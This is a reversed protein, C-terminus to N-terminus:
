DKVEEGHMEDLDDILAQLFAVSESTITLVDGSSSNLAVEAIWRAAKVIALMEPIAIFAREDGEMLNFILEKMNLSKIEETEDLKKVAFVPVLEEGLKNKPMVWPGPTIKPDFLKKM